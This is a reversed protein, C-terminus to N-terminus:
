QGPEIQLNMLTQPSPEGSTPHWGMARFYGERLAEFPVDRGWRPRGDLSQQVTRAARLRGPASRRRFNFAQRLM